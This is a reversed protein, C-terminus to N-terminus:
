NSTVATLKGTSSVDFLWIKRPGGESTLVFARLGSSTQALNVESPGFGFTMSDLPTGLLPDFTALRAKTTSSDNTLVIGIKNDPSLDFVHSTSNLAYNFSGTQTFFQAQALAPVCLSALFLIFIKSIKM